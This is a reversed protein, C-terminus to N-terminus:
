VAPETCERARGSRRAEPMTPMCSTTHPVTRPAARPVAHLVVCWGVDHLMVVRYARGHPLTGTVVGSHPSAKAGVLRM